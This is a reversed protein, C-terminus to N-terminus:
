DSRDLILKLDCFSTISSLLSSELNGNLPRIPKQLFGFDKPPLRKSRLTMRDSGPVGLVSKSNEVLSIIANNGRRLTSRQLLIFRM